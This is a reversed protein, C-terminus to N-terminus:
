HSSVLAALRTLEAWDGRAVLPAPTLRSGGACPVTSLALYDALNAATIGGTPCFRVHPLPGALARLFAPGGGAEAPFFKLETLGRELVALVESVTAVGPLVPVGEALMANLLTPPSGPSVLFRAGAAVAREAQAPTVITGAGVVIDPVEASIRELGAFAAPTRLTLELTRLGGALLAKALPVAQEADELVVVPLVPGLEMLEGADM